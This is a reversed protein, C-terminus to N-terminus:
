KLKQKTKFLDKVANVTSDFLDVYMRGVLDPAQRHTGMWIILPLWIGAFMAVTKFSEIPYRSDLLAPSACLMSVVAWATTGKALNVLMRKDIKPNKQTPM